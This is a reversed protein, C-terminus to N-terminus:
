PSQKRARKPKTADLLDQLEDSGTKDKGLVKQAERRAASIEELDGGKRAKDLSAIAASIEKEGSERDLKGVLEDLTETGKATKKAGPVFQNREELAQQLKEKATKQKALNGGKLAAKAEAAIKEVKEDAEKLRDKRVVGTAWGKAKGKTFRLAIGIAAIAASSKLVDVVFNPANGEQGKSIKNEVTKMGMDANDLMTRAAKIQAAIAPDNDKNQLKFNNLADGMDKISNRQMDFFKKVDGKKAGYGMSDMTYEVTGGVVGGAGIAATGAVARVLKQWAPGLEQKRLEEYRSYAGKGIGKELIPMAKKTIPKRLAIATAGVVLPVAWTDMAGEIWSRKHSNKYSKYEVTATAFYVQLQSSFRFIRDSLGQVGVEGKEMYSKLSTYAAEVNEYAKNTGAAKDEGIENVLRNKAELIDAMIQALDKSAAEGDIKITAPKQAEQQVPQIPAEAKQPQAVINAEKPKPVAKIQKARKAERLNRYEAAKRKVIEANYDSMNKQAAM